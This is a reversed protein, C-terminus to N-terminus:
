VSAQEETQGDSSKIVYLGSRAFPNLSKIEECSSCPFLESVNDCHCFSYLLNDM